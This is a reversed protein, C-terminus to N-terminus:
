PSPTKWIIIIGSDGSGSDGGLGYPDLVEVMYYASLNQYRVVIRKQGIQRFLYHEDPDPIPTANEQSPHGPDEVIGISVQNIPIIDVQGSQYLLVSLQDQPIFEERIYYITHKPVAQLLSNQDLTGGGISASGTLDGAQPNSCSVAAISVCLLLAFRRLYKM